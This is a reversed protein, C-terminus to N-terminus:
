RGGAKTRKAAPGASAGGGLQGDTAEVTRLLARLAAQDTPSLRSFLEVAAADRARGIESYLRTGAETM